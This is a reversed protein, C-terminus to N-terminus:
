AAQLEIVPSAPADGVANSAVIQLRVTAGAPVGTLELESAEVTDALVPEADVGVVQKFVKYRAARGADEWDLAIIGPQALAEVDEVAEPVRPDGPVRDIFELWRADTPALVTRLETWLKQLAASLASEATDRAERRQRQDRRCDTVTTLAANLATLKQTFLAATVGLVVSEHTAHTLLYQKTAVLVRQLDGDTRPTTLSQGSFGLQAWSENWATGFLATFYDRTRTVLARADVRAARITVYAQRKLHRATDYIHCNGEAATILSSVESITLHTIALSAQHQTLGELSKRAM